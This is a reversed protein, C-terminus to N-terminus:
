KYFDHFLILLWEWVCGRKWTKSGRPNAPNSQGVLPQVVCGKHIEIKKVFKLHYWCCLWFVWIINAVVGLCLGEKVDQTEGPEWSLASGEGRNAPTNKWRCHHLSPSSSSPFNFILFWQNSLSPDCWHDCPSMYSTVHLSTWGTSLAATQNRRAGRGALQLAELKQGVDGCETDAWAQARRSTRRANLVPVLWM